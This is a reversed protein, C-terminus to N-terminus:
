SGASPNLAGPLANILKSDMEELMGQLNERIAKGVRSRPFFDAIAGMLAESAREVTPGDFAHAFEDADGGSGTLVYLVSVLRAPDTFLLDALAGSDSLARSLDVGTKRKVDALSGVTLTVTHTKGYRDTFTSM